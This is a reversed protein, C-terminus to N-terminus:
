RRRRLLWIGVLGAVVAAGIALAKRTGGNDGGSSAAPGTTVARTRLENIADAIEGDPVGRDSAEQWASQEAQTLTAQTQQVYQREAPDLMFQEVPDVDAGVNLRSPDPASSLNHFTGQRFADDDDWWDDYGGHGVDHGMAEGAGLSGYLGYQANLDM